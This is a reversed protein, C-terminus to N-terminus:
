TLPHDKESVGLPGVVAKAAFFHRAKEIPPWITPLSILWFLFFGLWAKTTTGSSEPFTNPINAYSPFIAQLM